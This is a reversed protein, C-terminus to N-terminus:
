KLEEFRDTDGWMALFKELAKKSNGADTILDLREDNVHDANWTQNFSGSTNIQGDIVAQKIHMLGEHRNTKVPIGAKVLMSVARHTQNNEYEGRDIIVRVDVGRIKAKILAKSLPQSTINFCAVYISKRAEDYLLAIRDALHGEPGYFTQIDSAVAFVPPLSATLFLFSFFAEKLFFRRRLFKHISSKKM